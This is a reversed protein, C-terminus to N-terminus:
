SSDPRKAAFNKSSNKMLPSPFFTYEPMVLLFVSRTNTAATATKKEKIKSRM